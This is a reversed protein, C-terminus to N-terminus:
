IALVLCLASVHQSSLLYKLFPSLSPFSSPLLKPCFTQLSSAAMGLALLLHLTDFQQSPGRFTSPHSFAASLRRCRINIKKGGLRM